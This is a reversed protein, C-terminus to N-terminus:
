STRPRRPAATRRAQGARAPASGVGGRRATAALSAVASGAADYLPAAAGLRWARLAAPSSDIRWDTEKDANFWVLGSIRADRAIAKFMATIWAAKTGGLETSGTETIWIPKATLARVDGLSPDFVESFTEWGSPHTAGWNFGDIGVLDVYADGPYITKLPTSGPYRNIPTWAFTVNTAAVSTFVDHIHRYASIYRAATNAGVQPSWANWDGNAECLFRVFVPKGWAKAGRAWRRLVGDFTGVAIAAATYQPANTEYTIFPTQGRDSVAQADAAPFADTFDSYTMAVSPRRGATADYADLRRRWDQSSMYRPDPVYAGMVVRRAAAAARASRQSPAADAIAGVGILPLLVLARTACRM